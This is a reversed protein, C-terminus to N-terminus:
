PKPAHRGVAQSRGASWGHLFASVGDHIAVKLGGIAAEAVENPVVTRGVETGDRKFFVAFGERQEDWSVTVRWGAQDAFGEFAEQVAVRAEQDAPPKLDLVRVVLTM